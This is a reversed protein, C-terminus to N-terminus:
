RNKCLLKWAFEALFSETSKFTELVLLYDRLFGRRLFEIVMYNGWVNMAQASGQLVYVVRSNNFMEPTRLHKHLRSLSTLESARREGSDSSCIFTGCGGLAQAFQGQTELSHVPCPCYSPSRILERPETARETGWRMETTHFVRPGLHTCSSKKEQFRRSWRRRREGRRGM